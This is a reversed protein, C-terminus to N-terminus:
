REPSDKPQESGRSANDICSIANAEEGEQQAITFRDLIRAKKEPARGLPQKINLNILGDANRPIM